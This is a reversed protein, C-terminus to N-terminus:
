TGGEGSRGQRTLDPQTHTAFQLPVGGTGEGAYQIAAGTRLMESLHREVAVIDPERGVGDMSKYELPAQRPAAGGKGARVLAEVARVSLGEKAVRRAIAEADAAGILARAHGMALSGDGFLAQVSEPLDLLRM